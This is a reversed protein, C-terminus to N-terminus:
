HNGQGPKWPARVAPIKVGGTVTSGYKQKIKREVGGKNVFAPSKDM